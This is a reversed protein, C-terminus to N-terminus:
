VPPSKAGDAPSAGPAVIGPAGIPAPPVTGPGPRASPPLSVPRGQPPRRSTANLMSAGIIPYLAKRDSIARAARIGGQVAGEFCAALIQNATWDGAVSLNEYGTDDPNIRNESEGPLALTCREHPDINFRLYQSSLRVKGKNNGPDFLINWHLIRDKGDTGIPTGFGPWLESLHAFLTDAAHDAQVKARARWENDITPNARDREPGQWEHPHPGCFYGLMRPRQDASWPEKELVQGMDCWTNLPDWFLSLLPPPDPWGLQALSYKSWIQLAVTQTTGVRDQLDWNGRGAAMLEEGVFPICAVPIGFIVKDFVNPMAEASPAGDAHRLVVTRDQSPSFFEEAQLAADYDDPHIHERIPKFPWCDAGGVRVLPDYEDGSAPRAIQDLHIEDIFAAGGEDIRKKLAKVRHFFKFKVGRSRLLHYLPVHIVEGMGARMKFFMAGKFSFFMWVMIRLAAGAAMSQKLFARQKASTRGAANFGGLPYSFAADYIIRVISSRATTETGGYAKLWERFDRGDMAEYGAGAYVRQESTGILVALVMDFAAWIAGIARHRLSRIEVAHLVAQAVRLARLFIRGIWTRKDLLVRLARLGLRVVWDGGENPPTATAPTPRPRHPFKRRYGIVPGLARQVGRLARAGFVVLVATQGLGSLLDWTKPLPPDGPVGRNVPFQIDLQRWDGPPREDGIVGYERPTLADFFSRFHPAAASAEKPLADYCGLMMDFVNHYGGFLIHLGHELIRGEPGDRGSSTKGGLRWSMEYVTIDYRGPERTTLYYVAALAAPGGGLVALRIPPVPAPGKSQAM